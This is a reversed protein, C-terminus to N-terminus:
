KNLVWYYFRRSDLWHGACQLSSCMGLSDHFNLNWIMKNVDKLKDLVIIRFLFTETPYVVKNLNYHFLLKQCSNFVSDLFNVLFLIFFRAQFFWFLYCQHFFHTSFYPKTFSKSRGKPHPVFLFFSCPQNENAFHFSGKFGVSISKFSVQNYKSHWLMCLAGQYGGQERFHLDGASEESLSWVGSIPPCEDRSWCLLFISIVPHFFEALPTSCDGAVNTKM